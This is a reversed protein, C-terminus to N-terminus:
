SARDSVAMEALNTPHFGPGRHGFAFAGWQKLVSRSQALHRAPTRQNAATRNRQRWHQPCNFSKCIDKCRAGDASSMTSSDANSSRYRSGNILALGSLVACFTLHSFGYGVGSCFFLPMIGSNAACLLASPLGTFLLVKCGCPRGAQINDQCMKFPHVIFM